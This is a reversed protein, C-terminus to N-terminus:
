RGDHENRDEKTLQDSNDWFFTMGQWQTERSVYGHADACTRIGQWDTCTLAESHAPPETAMNWLVMVFLILSIARGIRTGILFLFVAVPWSVILGIFM